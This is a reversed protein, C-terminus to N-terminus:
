SHIGRPDFPDLRHRIFLALKARLPGGKGDRWYRNLRGTTTLTHPIDLFVFTMVLVNNLVNHAQGIPLLVYRGLFALEPTLKDEAREFGMVLVFLLFTACPLYLSLKLYLLLFAM